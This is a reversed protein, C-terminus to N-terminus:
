GALVTRDCRPDVIGALDNPAVMVVIARFTHQHVVHVAEQKPVPTEGLQALRNGHIVAQRSIAADGGAKFRRVTDRVTVDCAAVDNDREIERETDLGLNPGHTRGAVLKDSIVGISSRNPSEMALKRSFGWDPMVPDKVNM